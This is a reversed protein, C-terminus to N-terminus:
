RQQPDLGLRQSARQMFRHFLQQQLERRRVLEQPPTQGYQPPGSLTDAVRQARAAAPALLILLLPLHGPRIV